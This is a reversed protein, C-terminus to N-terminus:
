QMRMKITEVPINGIDKKGVKRKFCNRGVTHEWRGNWYNNNGSNNGESSLEFEACIEYEDENIM